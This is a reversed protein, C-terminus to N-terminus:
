PGERAPLISAGRGKATGTAIDLVARVKALDFHNDSRVGSEMDIWYPVDRWATVAEHVRLLETELVDPGLGGAYGCYLPINDVSYIPPWKQPRHGMGKSEDHLLDIHSLSGMGAEAVFRQITQRSGGHYQLILRLGARRLSRYVTLVEGETFDVRRANINIQIRGYLSLDAIRTAATRPDLIERFVQTGCVHAATFPLKLALFRERWAACPVRPAGEKEPFYLIAWEPPISAAYEDSIEALSALLVNDDAGTLSVCTLPM